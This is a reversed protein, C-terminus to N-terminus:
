ENGNVISDIYNDVESDNTAQALRNESSLRKGELIDAVIGYERAKSIEEAKKVVIYKVFENFNLGYKVGENELATVVEVPFRLNKQIVRKSM